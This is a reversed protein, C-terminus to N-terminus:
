QSFHSFRNKKLGGYNGFRFRFYPPRFPARYPGELVVWGGLKTTRTSRYTRKKASLTEFIKM